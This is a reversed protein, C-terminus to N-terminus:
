CWRRCRYAIIIGLIIFFAGTLSFGVIMMIFFPRSSKPREWQVNATNSPNYYCTPSTKDQYNKLKGLAEASTEYTETITSFVYCDPISDIIMYEVIWMISYCTNQAAADGQHCENYEHDIILCTTESYIYYNTYTPIYLGLGIFGIVISTLGIITVITVVSCYLTCSVLTLIQSTIESIKM